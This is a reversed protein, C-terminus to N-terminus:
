KQPGVYKASGFGLILSIINPFFIMLIGMGTGKGYAKVTKLCYRIDWVLWVISGALALISMFPNATFDVTSTTGNVTMQLTGYALGYVVSAALLIWFNKTDWWLKFGIYDAYIPIICKWGAEGAKTFMKWRAVILLVWCVVIILLVVSISIGAITLALPDTVAAGNVTATTEM